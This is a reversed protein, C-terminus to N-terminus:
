RLLNKENKIIKIIDSINSKVPKWDRIKKYPYIKEFINKKSLWKVKIKRDYKKNFENIIKSIKFHKSNKLIYKGPKISKNCIASVAKTIDENNVLNLYLNKSNIETLLNKKYNLRLVNIIKKRNDNYGFTDSLILNYFKVKINGKEYFSLINSFSKKYASYLNFLNDKKSNYDEWVTSFNIFKKVGMYKLNELIINGFLINSNSFKQIDEFKHKKAYHTATHIVTDIKLKKLKNNLEKYNKYYIYKENKKIIKKGKKRIILFIKNKKSIEKLINSGIFGTCGTLLINKM